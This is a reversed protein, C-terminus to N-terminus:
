PAVVQWTGGPNPLAGHVPVALGSVGWFYPTGNAHRWVLDARNDGDFDSVAHISWDMGPNNALFGSDVPTAGNM